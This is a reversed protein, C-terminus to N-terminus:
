SWRKSGMCNSPKLLMKLPRFGEVNGIVTVVDPYIQRMQDALELYSGEMAPFYENGHGMYVLGAKENIALKVDPALIEAATNIDEAYPHETGYTGLAPRGLAVKHFPKYKAKKLTGMHM